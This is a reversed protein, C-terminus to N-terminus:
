SKARILLSVTRSLIIAKHKPNDKLADIITRGVGGTGGAVAVNVMNSFSTTNVANFFRYLLFLVELTGFFHSASV